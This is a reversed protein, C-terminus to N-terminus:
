LTSPFIVVRALFPGILMFSQEPSAFIEASFPGILKEPV